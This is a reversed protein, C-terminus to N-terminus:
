QEGQFSGFLNNLSEAFSPHAFIADRLATYPLKGMMAIQLMSMIEGGEVGFIAAGLIRDTDPDVLVKMRGRTEDTEIARAVSSMPMTAVRVKRGAKRAEDEGLGVRGFQPDIYVTYPVLRDATSAGGDGVLNTKLIRYDDYSIHTFAPGGNVDGIAYIGPVNTALREDVTISGRGNTAVGAVDLGLRDTNPTRGTAALLHSGTITREGEPGRVTLAVGGDGTAAVGAAATELLITLGDERLVDAVAAAMDTDERALLQKGRQVITVASGLRRFLQGFELAVYGGGIIVLHEPVADLEMISTSDLVPVSESGPLEPRAPREGTNIVITEARLETEGGANLRVALTKPGTFRAEGWLVDLGATGTLGGESGSRFSDVIDRKRQRIRGQDIAIPGSQVGYDAGRRALYAVRGSAIMTKTPTCGENVCTGGAHAREVIAVRKGAKALASALPGGGQGAGIITADYEQM